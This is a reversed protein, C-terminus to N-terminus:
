PYAPPTQSLEATPASEEPNAAPQPVFNILILNQNCDDYTEFFIRETLPEGDPDLLQIWFRDGSELPNEGFQIEYGGLGYALADGTKGELPKENPNQSDGLVVTIGLMELGETNFVQGAAGLWMCGADPNNFNPLTIPNGEQLTYAPSWIPIPATPEETPEITATPSLAPPLTATPLSITATLAPPTETPTKFVVETPQEIYPFVNCGTIILVFSMLGLCFAFRKM